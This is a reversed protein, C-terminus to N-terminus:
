KKPLADGHDHGDDWADPLYLIKNEIRGVASMTAGSANFSVKDIGDESTKTYTGSKTMHSLTATFTGDPFLRVTQSGDSYTEIKSQQIASYVVFALVAVAVLGCISAILIKKRKAKKLANERRAAKTTSKSM